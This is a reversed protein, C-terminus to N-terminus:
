KVVRRVAKIRGKKVKSIKVGKHVANIMKGKGVYIGVHNGYCIIDGKKANKYSVGKGSHQLGHHNNPLKIGYKAYMQRVFQVCDIGKKLSYGGYKYPAGIYNKSTVVLEKGNKFIPDGKFTKWDKGKPLGLIGKYVVAPTGEDIIKKNTDKKSKIKGNVSTYTVTVEQKGDKGKKKTKSDGALMKKNKVYEPEPVYKRVEIKYSAIKVKLPNGLKECRDIIYQAAKEHTLIKDIETTKINTKKYAIRGGMDALKIETDEPLYTEIIGNITKKAGSEGRVFCVNDGDVTITYPNINLAIHFIGVFVLISAIVIGTIKGIKRVSKSSFFVHLSKSILAAMRKAEKKTKEIVEKYNM